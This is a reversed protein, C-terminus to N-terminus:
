FLLPLFGSLLSHFFSWLSVRLTPRVLRRSNFRRSVSLFPASRLPPSGRCRLLTPSSPPSRPPSLFFVSVEVQFSLGRSPRPRRPYDHLPEKREVESLPYLSFVQEVYGGVRFPTRDLFPIQSTLLPDQFLFCNLPPPSCGWFGIRETVCSFFLSGRPIRFRNPLSFPSLSTCATTLFTQHAKTL